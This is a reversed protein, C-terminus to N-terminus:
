PTRAGRCALAPFTSRLNRYPIISRFGYVPRADRIGECASCPRSTDHSWGRLQLLAGDYRHPYSYPDWDRPRTYRRCLGIRGLGTPYQIHSIYEWSPFSCWTITALMNRLKATSMVGVDCYTHCLGVRNFVGTVAQEHGGAGCLKFSIFNCFALRNSTPPKLNKRRKGPVGFGILVNSHRECLAWLGRRCGM